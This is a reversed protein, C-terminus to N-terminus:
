QITSREKKFLCYSYITCYLASILVSGIAIGIVVLSPLLLAAVITAIGSIFFLVSMRRNTKNWNEENSLTWPLRMGIFFNQKISYMINGLFAFFLGILLFLFNGLEHKEDQTVYLIYLAIASLFISISLALKIRVAPTIKAGKKPDLKDINLMLAGIGASLIGFIVPMAILTAKKGYADPKSSTGWHTPVIDPLTNWIVVLYLAPLLAIVLCVFFVTSRKM